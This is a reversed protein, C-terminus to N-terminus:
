VYKWHYGGAIQQKGRCARSISTADIKTQRSVEHVSRYIIDTEVCKVPKSLAKAIRKNKTGYNMNYNRNCWELNDVCNNVKNEDKHNVEPLNDPNPIFAEAVLRHPKFTRSINNKRLYIQYYGRKENFIPKLIREPLIQNRDIRKRSLSKVRGLNSVQYLGEYGKIDKWIEKM